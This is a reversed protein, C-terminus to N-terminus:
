NAAVIENFAAATAAATAIQQAYAAAEAPTKTSCAGWNVGFQVTKAGYSATEYISPLDHDASRVGWNLYGPEETKRLTYAGCTWETKRVTVQGSEDTDTRTTTRPPTIIIATM